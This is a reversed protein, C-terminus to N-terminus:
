TVDWVKESQTLKKLDASNVPLGTTASKLQALIWTNLEQEDKPSRTVILHDLEKNTKLSDLIHISFESLDAKEYSLHRSRVLNTLRSNSDSEGYQFATFEGQPGVRVAGSSGMIIAEVSMNNHNSLNLQLSRSNSFTFTSSGGWHELTSNRPSIKNPKASAYCTEPFEKFLSIALDIWHSGNTVLCGAGGTVVISQPDGVLYMIQKLYNRRRRNYGVVLNLKLDQARDAMRKSAGASNSLPKEILFNKIGSESLEKLWFEHSDAWTSVIALSREPKPISLLAAKFDDIADFIYIQGHDPIESTAPLKLDFIMVWDALQALNTLHKKGVSGLGVIVLGFDASM